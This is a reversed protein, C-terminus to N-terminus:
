SSTISGTPLRFAVLRGLHAKVDGSNEFCDLTATGGSPLSAATSVSVGQDLGGSDVPDGRATGGDRGAGRGGRLSCEGVGRLYLLRGRRSDPLRRRPLTPSLQSVTTNFGELDVPGPTQRNMYIHLPNLQGTVTANGQITVDGVFKGALGGSGTGEGLVGIGGDANSRGAVGFGGNDNEGYVGSAAGNTIGQLGNGSGSNTASM